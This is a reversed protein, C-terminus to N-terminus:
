VGKVRRYKALVPENDYSYENDLLPNNKYVIYEEHPWFSIEKCIREKVEELNFAEVYGGIKGYGNSSIGFWRYKQKLLSNAM